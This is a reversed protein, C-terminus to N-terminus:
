FEYRVNRELCAPCLSFHDTLSLSLSLSLSHTHTKQPCAKLRDFGRISEKMKGAIMSTYVLVEVVELLRHAEM